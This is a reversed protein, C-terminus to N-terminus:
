RSPTDCMALKFGASFGGGRGSGVGGRVLGAPLSVSPAAAFATEAPGPGVPLATGMPSASRTRGALEEAPLTAPTATSALPPPGADLPTRGAPQRPPPTEDIAAASSGHTQTHKSRHRVTPEPAKPQPKPQPMLAGQNVIINQTPKFFDLIRVAASPAYVQTKLILKCALERPRHLDRHYKVKWQDLFQRISSASLGITEGPVAPDGLQASPWIGARHEVFHKAWHFTNSLGPDNCLAWEYLAIRQM